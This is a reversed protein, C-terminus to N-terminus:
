GLPAPSADQHRSAFIAALCNKGSLQRAIARVAPSNQFFLFFARRKHPLCNPLCKLLCNPHPYNRTLFQRSVTGTLGWFLVYVSLFRAGFNSRLGWGWSGRLGGGEFNKICQIRSPFGIGICLSNPRRLWRRSGGALNGGFNKICIKKPHKKRGAGLPPISQHRISHGNELTRFINKLPRFKRSFGQFEASLAIKAM